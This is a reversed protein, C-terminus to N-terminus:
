LCRKQSFLMRDHIFPPFELDHINALKKKKMRLNNLEDRSPTRNVCDSFVNIFMKLSPNKEEADYLIFISV